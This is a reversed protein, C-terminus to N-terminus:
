ANVWRLVDRLDHIAAQNQGSLDILTAYMGINHAAEVNEPKDDVFLIDCPRIRLAEAALLFAQPDPKHVGLLCTSLAVDVVDALGVAELTRDISPLTNSLVGVKVGRGRLELLVERANPVAKMYREYPFANLLEQAAEQPLGLRKVLTQGYNDWFREEDEHSRLTWFGQANELWHQALGQGAERPDLGYKKAIWHAAERYVGHDTFSITDDRDFLVAKIAQPANM